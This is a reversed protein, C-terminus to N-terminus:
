KLTFHNPKIHNKFFEELVEGLLAGLAKMLVNRLEVDLGEVKILLTSESYTRVSVSGLM